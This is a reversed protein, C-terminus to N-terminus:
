ISIYKVFSRLQRPNLATQKYKTSDLLHFLSVYITDEVSSSILSQNQNNNHRPIHPLPEPWQARTIQGILPWCPAMQGILPRVCHQCGPGPGPSSCQGTRSKLTPGTVINPLFPPHHIPHPTYLLCKIILLKLHDSPYRNSIFFRESTSNVNRM